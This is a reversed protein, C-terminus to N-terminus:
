TAVETKNEAVFPLTVRVCLGGEPLNSFNIKGQMQEVRERMGLMGYSTPAIAHGEPLGCGNDSITLIIMENEHHLNVEVKSAGSHRIINTLSEQFIRFLNITQAKNLQYSCGETCCTALCKIGTRKQFQEAQWELAACLGLDDLITPRLDTIVQRTATSVTDLLQSMAEVHKLLPNAQDNATMKDVLWNMDMKLATLTGGLHDHIERAVSAKEEERVHQLHASLNHLQQESSKLESIDQQLRATMNNIGCALHNLEAVHTSQIVRTELNGQAIRQVAESLECIPSSIRRSTALRLLFSIVILLAVAASMLWFMQSKLQETRQWSMKIIVAGMQHTAPKLEFDDLTVQMSVIPQYIWLSKGDSNVPSQLNVIQSVKKVLMKKRSDSHDIATLSTDIIATKTENFLDGAEILNESAANLIMVGSVDPQQLIGQALNKLLHQNNSFVGYESSSALQHAILKARETLDHDLDNSRENVFYLELGIALILLPVLTLWVLYQRISYLKM